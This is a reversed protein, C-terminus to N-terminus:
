VTEKEIVIWVYESEFERLFQYTLGNAMLVWENDYIHSTFRHFKWGKPIDLEGYDM